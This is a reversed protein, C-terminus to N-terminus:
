THYVYDVDLLLLKVAELLKSLRPYCYSHHWKTILMHESLKMQYMTGLTVELLINLTPRFHYGDKYGLFSLTIIYTVSM